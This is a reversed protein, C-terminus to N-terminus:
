PQAGEEQLEWRFGYQLFDEKGTASVCAELFRKM